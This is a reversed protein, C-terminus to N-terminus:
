TTIAYHCLLRSCVHNDALQDFIIIKLNLTLSMKSSISKIQNDEFDNWLKPFGYIISLSIIWSTLNLLHYMYIVITAFIPEKLSKILSYFFLPVSVAYLQASMKCTPVTCVDYLYFPMMCINLGLFSSTLCTALCVSLLVNFRVPLWVCYLCVEYLYVSM